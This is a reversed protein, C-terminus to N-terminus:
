SLEARVAGVYRFMGMVGVVMVAWQLRGRHTSHDVLKLEDIQQLIGVTVPLRPLAVSPAQLKRVGRLMRELLVSDTGPDPLGRVQM